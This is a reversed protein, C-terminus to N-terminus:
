KKDWIIKSEDIKPEPKVEEWGKPISTNTITDDIISIKLNNEKLKSVLKIKEEETLKLIESKKMIISSQKINPLNYSVVVKDIKKYKDFDYRDLIDSDSFAETNNNDVVRTLSNLKIQNEFLKFGDKDLFSLILYDELQSKSYSYEDKIKVDLIYNINAKRDIVDTWYSDVRFSTNLVVECCGIDDKFTRKESSPIQFYGVIFYLIFGCFWLFISLLSIRVINTYIKKIFELM